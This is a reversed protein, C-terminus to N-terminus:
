VIIAVSPRPIIQGVSARNGAYEDRIRLHLILEDPRFHGSGNSPHGARKGCGLREKHEHRRAQFPVVTGAAQMRFAGRNVHSNIEGSYPRM